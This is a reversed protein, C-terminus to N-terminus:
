FNLEARFPSKDLTVCWCTRQAQVSNVQSKSNPEAMSNQRREPTKVTTPYSLYLVRDLYLIFM